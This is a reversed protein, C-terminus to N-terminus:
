GLKKYLTGTGVLTMIGIALILVPRDNIYTWESLLREFGFFTAVAGFTVLLTFLAPFRTFVSKRVPAITAEMTREVSGVTDDVSDLVSNVTKTVNKM